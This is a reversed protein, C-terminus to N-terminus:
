SIPINGAKREADYWSRWQQLKDGGSLNSINAKWAEELWSNIAPLPSTDTWRAIPYCHCNPHYAEGAATMASRYIAGRSALMACFACPNPGLGRAFKIVRKDARGVTQILSRGINIALKDAQGAGLSGKAEHAKELSRLTKKGPETGKAKQNIEKVLPTIVKETLRKRIESLTESSSAVGPWTFPDIPVTRSDNSEDSADLFAQVRPLIDVQGLVDGGIEPTVLAHFPTSETDDGLNAVSMVQALFADRLNGMTAPRNELLEGLTYGSEIARALQYYARALNLSLARAALVVEATNNMWAEGTGGPSTVTVNGWRDTTVLAVAIGLRAQAARHLQEIAEIEIM